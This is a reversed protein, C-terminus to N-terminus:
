KAAATSQQSSDQIGRTFIDLDIANAMAAYGAPNPHTGDSMVLAPDSYGPNSEDNLVAYFDILDYGKSHAYETIWANLDDKQALHDGTPIVTCLVPVAGYSEVRSCITNVNGEITALSEGKALDNIGGMIIVFHPNLELAADTRALMDATTAGGVGQDVVEWDGGLRAKLHYPWNGPDAFGETVSDGVCVIRQAHLPHVPATAPSSTTTSATSDGLSTNGLSSNSSTTNGASTNAPTGNGSYGTATVVLTAIAISAIILMFLDTGLVRRKYRGARRKYRGNRNSYHTKRYM